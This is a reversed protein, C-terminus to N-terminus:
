SIQGARAPRSRRRRSKPFSAPPAAPAAPCRSAHQDFAAPPRAAADSIRRRSGACRSLTRASPHAGPRVLGVMEGFRELAFAAVAAIEGLPAQEAAIQPSIRSSATAAPLRRQDLCRGDARRARVVAPADRQVVAVRDCASRAPAPSRCGPARAAARKARAAAVRKTLLGHPASACAATSRDAALPPSTSSRPVPRVMTSRTSDSSAAPCRPRITARDRRPWIGRAWASKSAPAPRARRTGCPSRARATASAAAARRALDAPARRDVAQPRVAM